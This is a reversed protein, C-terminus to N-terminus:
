SVFDKFSNLVEKYLDKKFHVSSDLVSYPEIWKWELFEIDHHLKLNIQNESGLFLMAYWYQQQGKYTNGWSINKLYDEPIDYKLLKSKSLIKVYEKKIGTEEYLERLVADEPKENEDIGGQPMQWVNGHKNDARKGVWIKKDQNLLFIGVGQRYM